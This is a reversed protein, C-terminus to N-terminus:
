ESAVTQMSVLHGVISLRLFIPTCRLLDAHDAHRQQGMSGDDACIDREQEDEIGYEEM